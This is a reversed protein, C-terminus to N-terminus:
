DQTENTATQTDIREKGYEILEKAIENVKKNPITECIRQILAKLEQIEQEKARLQEHLANKTNDIDIVIYKAKENSENVLQKVENIKRNGLSTQAILKAVMTGVVVISVGIIPLPQNVWEVVQNCFRITEETRYNYFCYFAVLGCTLLAGVIGLIITKKKM